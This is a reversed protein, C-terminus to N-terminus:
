KACKWSFKISLFDVINTFNLFCFPTHALFTTHVVYSKRPIKARAEPAMKTSFIKYCIQFQVKKHFFICVFYIVKVFNFFCFTTHTGSNVQNVLFITHVVYTTRPNKTIRLNHFHVYLSIASVGCFINWILKILPYSATATKLLYCFKIFVM